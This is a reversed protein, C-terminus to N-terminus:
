TFVFYLKIDMDVHQFISLEGCLGPSFYVRSVM